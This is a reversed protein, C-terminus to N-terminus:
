VVAIKKKGGGGRDTKGGTSQNKENKRGLLVGNRRL